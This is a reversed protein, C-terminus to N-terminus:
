LPYGWDSLPLGRERVLRRHGARTLAEIRSRWRESPPAHAAPGGVRSAGSPDVGLMRRRLPFPALGLLRRQVPSASIRRLRRLQEATFRANVRKHDGTAAPRIGVFDCVRRAFADPAEVLSEYALVEVNERGFTREYADILAAAGPDALRGHDPRSWEADLWADIEQFAVRKRPGGARGLHDLALRRFYISEIREVPNRIVVLIRAPGFAAAVNRARAAHREATGFGLTEWSWVVAPRGRAQELLAQALPRARALDPALCGDGLLERYLLAVTEDRHRRRHDRLKGLYTVEAHPAFLRLQLWTSACRSLGVHLTLQPNTM